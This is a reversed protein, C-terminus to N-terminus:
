PFQNSVFIKGVCCMSWPPAPCALLLPRSNSSVLCFFSSLFPPLGGPLSPPSLSFLLIFSTISYFLPLSPLFLRLTQSSSSPPILYLFSPSSPAHPVAHLLFLLFFVSSRSLRVDQDLCSPYCELPGDKLGRTQHCLEDGTRWGNDARGGQPSLMLLAGEQLHQAEGM